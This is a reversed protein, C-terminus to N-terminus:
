KSRLGFFILAAGLGLAGDGFAQSFGDTSNRLRFGNYIFYAGGVLLATKRTKKNLLLYGIGATPILVQPKTYWKQLVTGPPTGQSLSQNQEPM